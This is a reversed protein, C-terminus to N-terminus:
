RGAVTKATPLGAEAWADVGGRYWYVKSYGAVSARLAANYSLWCQSNACFFVVPRAKDGGTLQGLLQTLISQVPDLFNSGRGAGALWKAGALTLHGEGSLVDVLLPPDASTLMALLQRTSVVQAGPIERPTPAHYPQQRLHSTPAIGWDRDEDAFVPEAGPQQASAIGSVAMGVLLLAAWKNRLIHMHSSYPSRRGHV